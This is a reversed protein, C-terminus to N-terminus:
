KARPLLVVLAALALATLPSTFADM